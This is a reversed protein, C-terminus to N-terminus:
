SIIWYKIGEKTNDGISNYNIINNPSLYNELGDKCEKAFYYKQKVNGINKNHSSTRNKSDIEKTYCNNEKVNPLKLKSDSNLIHKANSM